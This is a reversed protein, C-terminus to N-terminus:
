VRQASVRKRMERKMSCSTLGTLVAMVSNYNRIYLLRELMQLPTELDHAVIVSTEVWAATSVFQDVLLAVHRAREERRALQWGNDLLEHARM